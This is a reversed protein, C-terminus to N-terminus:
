LNEAPEILDVGRRAGVAGAIMSAGAAAEKGANAHFLGSARVNMGADGDVLNSRLLDTM